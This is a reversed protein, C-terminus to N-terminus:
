FSRRVTVAWTRPLAPVGTVLGLSATVDSKSLYYYKDFLNQVELSVRWDDDASTYTLRANGLFVGEVRSYESNSAETFTDSQYSGDFRVGLTAGNKLEHDYQVGFSYTWEPTYPTVEDGTLGASAVSAADYKFNIYSLSGDFSLGDVPYASMEVEFGKVDAKGVNNPQLCPVSPCASLTLIIDNYKNIFGAANLRLRRDLLDSKFGIEYTTLTEPNFAKLQNCAAPAVYGPADCEGASPGFFPRPNVGGSKYGTSVSAYALFQDSFRYDTVIRWDWRDGEFTDSIGYLGSLLCNPTNGVGTPGATPAGQFFECIPLAPLDAPTWDEFPISGDPNSRYYTYTKKDKSYRLGGTISWADTPHLTGNFFVAKSTSPTTDPGHIFDIGAYNLDVRATYNGDQDFYFGGLTYQFLGDGLEGNLRLEQSWARHHMENDLQAVPVPTADQDQGWRSEYERWSSIWVLQLSDSLDLTVNGHIGWGIFDQNQLATYPKYPAQTTNAMGDVFNAYSIYRPDVGLASADLTDCSNVGYPVFHCDVPVPQGNVGPLWAGGNANTAPNPVSPDFPNPNTSTPGPRGAALVVTPAPESHDSTYDGSINVELTDTPTWRLALKGAVYSQGGQSGVIANAGRANSSPVNSGVHTRGYDLLDVYGDRSKAVGSVRAFLNEAVKFDAMGRIDLRNYSGYSVQLSGSGDGKPKQSFLKIAGGISNKGALTGQPGRLIEIRDLDMLDLLSSSLTPIYVDDVYVGVGPDLAYNFDTQGVGRIFAILGAGGNQPQPKLTVNPAQAAVQAIDTQGRAELMESNVATIAIPTDQLKAERFEATVIIENTRVSNDETGEDQAYAPTALSAMVALSSVVGMTKLKM